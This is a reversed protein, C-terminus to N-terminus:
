AGLELKADLLVSEAPDAGCIDSCGSLVAGGRVDSSSELKEEESQERRSGKGV